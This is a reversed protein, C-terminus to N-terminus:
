SERESEAQRVADILRQQEKSMWSSLGYNQKFAEILEIPDEGVLGRIPTGATAAGEFLDALDNLMRMLQTGDSPGTHLLYRECASATTAYAPPLAAVRARCARWERKDGIMRRIFNDNSM